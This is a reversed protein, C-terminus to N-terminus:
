DREGLVRVAFIKFHVTGSAVRRFPPLNRRLVPLTYFQVLWFNGFCRPQRKRHVSGPKVVVLRPIFQSSLMGAGVAPAAVFCENKAFRVGLANGAMGVHVLHRRPAVAGAAMTGFSPQHVIDLLDVPVIAEREDPRMGHRVTRVTVTPFSRELKAADPIVAGGAVEVLEHRRRVGVVLVGPKGGVTNLAM